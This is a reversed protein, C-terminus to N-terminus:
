NSDLMDDFVVFVSKSGYFDVVQNTTHFREYQELSSTKEFVDGLTKNKLNRM